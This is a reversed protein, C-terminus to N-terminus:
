KDEPNSPPDFPNIESDTARKGNKITLTLNVHIAKSLIGVLLAMSLALGLMKRPEFTIQPGFPVNLLDGQVQVQERQDTILDQWTHLTTSEGNLWM